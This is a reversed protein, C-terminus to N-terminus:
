AAIRHEAEYEDIRAQHRREANCVSSHDIQFWDAIAHLSYGIRRMQWMAEFRAWAQCRARGNGWFMANNIRWHQQVRNVIHDAITPNVSLAKRGTLEPFLVPLPPPILIKRRRRPNFERRIRGEISQKTRGLKEAIEGLSSGSGLMSLLISDELMAWERRM